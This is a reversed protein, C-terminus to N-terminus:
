KQAKLVASVEAFRRNIEEVSMKEIDAMTLSGGHSSSQSNTTSGNGSGAQPKAFLYPKSQELGKLVDGVNTPNGDGDFTISAQDILRFAAEPDICGMQGAQLMVEFRTSNAKLRADAKAARAEAETAALKLKESETLKETEFGRVKDELEKVKTRHGAAEERLRKVYAADFKDAEGTGGSNGDGTASGEGAKGDAQSQDDDAGGAIIPCFRGNLWFGPVHDPFQEPM